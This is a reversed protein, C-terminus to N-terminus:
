LREVTNKWLETVANYVKITKHNSNVHVQYGRAEALKTIEDALQAFEIDDLRPMVQEYFPSSIDAM